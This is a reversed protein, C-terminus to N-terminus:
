RTKLGATEGLLSRLRAWAADPRGAAEDRRAGELAAAAESLLRSVRARDSLGADIDPGLGAPDPCREWVLQSLSDLLRQLGDLEHAPPRTLARWIMVEIHFGRLPAGQRLNWARLMRTLARANGALVLDARAAARQHADPRSRIWRDSGRDPLWVVEEDQPDQFGPIMVLPTAGTTALVRARAESPRIQKINISRTWRMCVLLDVSQLPSPATERSFAGVARFALPHLPGQAARQLRDREAEVAAREGATPALSALHGRLTEGVSLM